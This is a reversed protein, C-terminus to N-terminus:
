RRWHDPALSLVIGYGFHGVRLRPFSGHAVLSYWLKVM